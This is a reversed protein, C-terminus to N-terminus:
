RADHRLDGLVEGSAASRTQRSRLTQRKSVLLVLSRAGTITVRTPCSMRAYKLAYLHACMDTAPSSCACALAPAVVTARQWRPHHMWYLSPRVHQHSSVLLRLGSCSSGSSSAALTPPADLRHESIGWITKDVRDLKANIKEM